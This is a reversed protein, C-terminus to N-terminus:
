PTILRIRVIISFYGPSSTNILNGFAYGGNQKCGTGGRQGIVSRWDSHGSECRLPFFVHPIRDADGPPGLLFTAVTLPSRHLPCRAWLCTKGCIRM